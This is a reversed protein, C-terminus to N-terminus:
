PRAVPDFEVVQELRGGRFHFSRGREFYWWAVEEGGDLELRDVRDPKGMEGYIRKQDASQSSALVSREQRPSLAGAVELAAVVPSGALVRRTLDIETLVSRNRSGATADAPTIGEARLRFSDYYPNWRWELRFAGQADTSTTVRVHGKEVRRFSRLEFGDHAALLVVTLGEVPAGSADAVTGTIEITEGRRYSVATAATAAGLGLALVIAFMRVPPAASSWRARSSAPAGSPWPGGSLLRRAM